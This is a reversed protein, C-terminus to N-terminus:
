RERDPQKANPDGQTEETAIPPEHARGDDPGPEDDEDAPISEVVRAALVVMAGAAAAAVGARFACVDPPQGCLWGLGALAFFTGVSIPTLMDRLTESV